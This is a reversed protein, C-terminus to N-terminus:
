DLALITVLVALLALWIGAARRTARRAREAEWWSKPEVGQIIFAAVGALNISIVNV